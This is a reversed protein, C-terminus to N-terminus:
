KPHQRREGQDIPDYVLTALGHLAGTVGVRQYWPANKGTASHGCPSVVGPYPAKYKPNDPLFLHATVYHHPRSEFLVKEIVYGDKKIRGTVRANLPTKEPLGGIASLVGARVWAQHAALKEKTDCALWAADAARDQRVVENFLSDRVTKGIDSGGCQLQQTGLMLSVILALNTM